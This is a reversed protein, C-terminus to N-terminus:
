SPVGDTKNLEGLEALRERFAMEMDIVFDNITTTRDLQTLFDFYLFDRDVMARITIVKKVMKRIDVLINKPLTNKVEHAEKTLSDAVLIMANVSEKLLCRLNDQEEIRSKCLQKMDREFQFLKGTIDLMKSGILM